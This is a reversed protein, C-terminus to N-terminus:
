HLFEGVSQFASSAIAFIFLYISSGFQTARARDYFANEPPRSLHRQQYSQQVLTVLHMQSFIDWFKVWAFKTLILVYSLGHSFTAWFQQAVEAM